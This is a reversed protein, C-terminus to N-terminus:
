LPHVKGCKAFRRNRIEYKCEKNKRRYPFLVRIEDFPNSTNYWELPSREISKGNKSIASEM